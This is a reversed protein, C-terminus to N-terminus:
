SGTKTSFDPKSDQVFDDLGYGTIANTINRWGEQGIEWFKMGKM